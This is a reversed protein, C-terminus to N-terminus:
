ADDRRLLFCLLRPGSSVRRRAVETLTGRRPVYGRYIGGVGGNLRKAGTMTPNACHVDGDAIPPHRGMMDAV